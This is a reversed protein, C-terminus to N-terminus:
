AKSGGKAKPKEPEPEPAPEPANGEIVSKLVGYEDSGDILKKCQSCLSKPEDFTYTEGIPIPLGCATHESFGIVHAKDDLTVFKLEATM